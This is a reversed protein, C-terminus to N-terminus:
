SPGEAEKLLMEVAQDLDDGRLDRYRIVGKHDLVFISPFGTIGWERCIPGTTSGDFWSRWSIKETVITKKLAELDKDTNIGLLAFKRGAMKQVLSREHPYM